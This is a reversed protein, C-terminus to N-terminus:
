RHSATQHLEEVKMVSSGDSFAAHFSIKELKPLSALEMPVRKFRNYDAIIRRLDQMKSFNPTVILRSNSLIIVQASVLESFSAPLETLRNESLNLRNLKSLKGISDPIKELLNHKLSLSRLEALDGINAPLQKIHNGDLNLYLLSNLECFSDPLVVLYNYNASFNRLSILEGFDAPLKSVYNDDITFVDLSTLQCFSDPLLELENSIMELRKLKTLRGIDEPLKELKNNCLYVCVLTTPLNDPLEVLNNENMSLEELNEPLEDSSFQEIKNNALNLKRLNKCDRVFSPIHELEIDPIHLEEIESLEEANEEVNFKTLDAIALVKGKKAFWYPPDEDYYSMAPKPQSLTIRPIAKSTHFFYIKIFKRM